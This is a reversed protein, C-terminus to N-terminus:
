GLGGRHAEIVAQETAPDLGFAPVGAKTPPDGVVRLWAWTDAVTAHMPRCRLGTAVARSVDTHVLGDMPPGPPLWGPLETFRELGFEDVVRPPVWVLEADSGTVDVCAELFSGFTTHGETNVLNYPGALGNELGDLLWRALDRVDVFRFPKDQPGPALVEGGREARRLWHTLVGIDDYPGLIVGARALLARDGFADLAALEGGRKNEAYSAEDADASADVTPWSEDMGLGTPPSYVARSSIYGFRGVRGALARASDRVVRPADAWTDVM